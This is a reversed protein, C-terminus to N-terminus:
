EAIIKEFQKKDSVGTYSLRTQKESESIIGVRLAVDGRDADVEYTFWCNECM